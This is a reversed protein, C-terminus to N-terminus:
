DPCSMSYTADRSMGRPVGKTFHVHLRKYVRAKGCFRRNTARVKVPNKSVTYPVKSKDTDFEYGTARATSGGWTNWHLNRLTSGSFLKIQRPRVKAAHGGGAIPGTITLIYVQASAAAFSGAICLWVGVLLALKVPRGRHRLTRM